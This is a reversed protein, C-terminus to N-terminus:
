WNVRVGVRATYGRVDGLTAEGQAFGQVGGVALNAGATVQTWHGRGPDTVDLIQNNLHIRSANQGDFERLQHVGVFPQVVAGSQLRLTRAVRVGGKALLSRTDGFKVEGAEGEIGGLDTKTWALAVQPEVTWDGNSVLAWAADIRAGVTDGDASDRLDASVFRYDLDYRDARAQVGVAMPGRSWHAYAGAGWGSFEATDGNSQFALETEGVGALLGLVLDGGGLGRVIDMGFQAGRAEVDHTLDIFEAGDESFRREGNVEDSGAFGQAWIQARGGRRLGMAQSDRLEDFRASVVDAARRWQAQAGSAIRTPEFAQRAAEAVVRFERSAADYVAAYSLFGGGVTDVEIENGAEDAGSAILTVGTEGVAGRGQVHLEVTSVGDLAGVRLLDAAPTGGRLDLDMLIRGGPQGRLTTGEMALLDGAVGNNLDIDGWNDFRELNIFRATGAEGPRSSVTLVGENEFLDSGGGFDSIGSAHFEGSNALTDGQDTLRVRGFLAGINAIGAAGGAVDIAYGMSTISGRNVVTTGADSFLVLGGERGVVEGEVLVEVVGGDAQVANAGMGGAWLSGIRVDVQGSGSVSVGHADEGSTEGRVVTVDIAGAGGRVDVGVAGDGSTELNDVHITAAGGGIFAVGRANAGDTTVGGVEITTLGADDHTAVNVGDSADGRTTIAATGVFITQGALLTDAEIFVGHAGDGVTDINVTSVSVPGMRLTPDGSVGTVRVGHALAGDTQITGTAVTAEAAGIVLVGTSELGDTDIDGTTLTLAGTGLGDFLVGVSESGMTHIDAIRVESEGSASIEAATAYRGNTTINGVDADLRGGDAMGVKLGVSEQRVEDLDGTTIDGTVVIRADGGQTGVSVANAERGRTNVDGNIRLSLDGTETHASVGTARTDNTTISGTLITLDSDGSVGASLGRARLGDTRIDGTSIWTEGAAEVWVGYSDDGTTEVLGVNVDVAAPTVTSALYAAEVRVGNSFSGSTRIAGTVTVDAARVGTVDVGTASGGSTTVDGNVTVNATGVGEDNQDSGDVEIGDAFSGRTIVSAATVTTSGTNRVYVGDSESGWVTGDPRVSGTSVAGVNVVVTAPDVLAPDFDIEVGRSDNGETTISQATLNVSDAEEILVGASEHGRTLIPGTITLTQAGGSTQLANAQFGSTTLSGGTLTLAHDDAAKAYVGGAQNGSTTVSGFVVRTPGNDSYVAMGTAGAGTTTVTGVEVDAAAVGIVGVGIAGEGSTSVTGVEVDAVGDAYAYVGDAWRGATTVRGLDLIVDGGANVASVGISDEGLTSIVGATVILDDDAAPAGVPDIRADIGKANTGETTVGTTSTIEVRGGDSRAYVGTSNAGHTIVSTNTVIIDGGSVDIGVSDDGHTEITGTTLAARSGNLARAIIGHSGVGDTILVSSTINVNLQGSVDMGVLNDGTTYLRTSGANAVGSSVARIGAGPTGDSVLAIENFYAGVGLGAVDVGINGATIVDGFVQAASTSSRAYIGVGTAGGSTVDNFFAFVSGANAVLSVATANGSQTVSPREIGTVQPLLISGTPASIDLGGNIVINAEARLEVASTYTVGWNYPGGAATCTVVGAVPVGCEDDAAAPTAGALVILAGGLATGLMLEANRRRTPRQNRRTTQIRM